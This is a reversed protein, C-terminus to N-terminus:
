FIVQRTPGCHLYPETQWGRPWFVALKQGATSHRVISVVIPELTSDAVQFRLM